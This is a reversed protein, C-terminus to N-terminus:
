FREITKSCNIPLSNIVYLKNLHSLSQEYFLVVIGAYIHGFIEEDITSM